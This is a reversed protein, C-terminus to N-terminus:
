PLKLPIGCGFHDGIVCLYPEAKSELEQCPVTLDIQLSDGKKLCYAIPADQKLATGNMYAVVGDGNTDQPSNPNVLINQLAEAYSVNTFALSVNYFGENKTVALLRPFVSDNVHPDPVGGSETRSSIAYGMAV